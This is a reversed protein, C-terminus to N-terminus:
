RRIKKNRCGNFPLIVRDEIRLLSLRRYQFNKIFHRKVFAVNGKFFLILRKIKKFQMYRDIQYVILQINQQANNKGKKKKLAKTSWQKFVNGNENTVSIITNKFACQIHVHAITTVQKKTQISM